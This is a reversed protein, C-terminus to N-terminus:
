KQALLTQMMEDAVSFLKAAASYAHQYQMLQTMEEDLSVSSISDRMTELEHVMNESFSSSRKISSAKIGLSGILSHYYDDITATTTGETNGNVRDYTWESIQMSSYQLDAIAQANTNDGTAFSGTTSDIQAAAIYDKDSAITSNIDIGGATSGTFFTNIGLAALAGSTDDSFAFTHSNTTSIALQGSGNVTATIDPDVASIATAINSLTTAGATVTVNAANALAGTSDYVYVRFTGTSVKDYYDLGSASTSVASGPSSSSYTGTASSFTTLGAGKSHQENVAWIFESALETLDQKYKAVVEDRMELFGGLKGKSIHDTIDVENGGSGQWKVSTGDLELDYSTDGDVFVVGNASVITFSDHEQQFVKMDIYEALESCLVNRQDKLDNASADVGMVIIETNLSAIESTIENVRGVGADLANTLDTRLQELDVDFSNLQESLLKSHEYLAIREPVASPNNAIDHWRNWFDGLINSLSNDTNENFLGELAVMYNEMGKFSYLDSKGQMVRNEIIQDCNRTIETTNVGRGLVVGGFPAPHRAELVASQKSYGPTNVNAINHGTVYIGYQQAALADKAISLLLGIGGSM